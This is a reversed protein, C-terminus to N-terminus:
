QFTLRLITDAITKASGMDGKLEKKFAGPNAAQYIDQNGPRGPSGVRYIKVSYNAMSSTIEHVTVEMLVSQLNKVIEERGIAERYSICKADPKAGPGQWRRCGCSSLEQLIEKTLQESAAPGQLGVYTLQTTASSPECTLPLKESGLDKAIKDASSCAVISLILTLALYKM